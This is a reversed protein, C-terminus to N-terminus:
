KKIGAIYQMCELMAARFDDDTEVERGHWFLKGERDIHIVEEGAATRITMIDAVPMSFIQGAEGSTIDNM